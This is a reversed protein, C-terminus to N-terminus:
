KALRYLTISALNNTLWYLVLGSPFHYFMIGFVISMMPGSFMKATPDQNASSAIGGSSLKTQFYMAGAMIIPLLNLENGLLPLHFSLSAARDPLSLDHIWLFSARRLEIYHSIARFLAIFIPMQLFM